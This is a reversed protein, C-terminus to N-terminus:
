VRCVASFVARISLPTFPNFPQLPELTVKTRKASATREVPSHPQFNTHAQTKPRNAPKITLTVNSKFWDASIQRIRTRRTGM